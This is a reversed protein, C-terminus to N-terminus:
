INGSWKPRQRRRRVFHASSALPGVGDGRSRARPEIGVRGAPLERTITKDLDDRGLEVYREVYESRFIRRVFDDPEHGPRLGDSGALSLAAIPTAYASELYRRQIDLHRRLSSKSQTRGTNDFM